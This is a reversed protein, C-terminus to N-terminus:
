QMFYIYQLSLSSFPPKMESIKILIRIEHDVFIKGLQRVTRTDRYLIIGVKKTSEFSDMTCFTQVYCLMKNETIDMLKMKFM